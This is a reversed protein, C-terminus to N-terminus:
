ANILKFSSGQDEPSLAAARSYLYQENHLQDLSAQLENLSGTGKVYAELNKYFNEEQLTLDEGKSVKEMTRLIKKMRRSLRGRISQWGYTRNLAVVVREDASKCGEMSAKEISISSAQILMGYQLDFHQNAGM